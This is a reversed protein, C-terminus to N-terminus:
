EAIIESVMAWNDRIFARFQETIDHRVDARFTARGNGHDNVVTYDTVLYIRGTLDGRYPTIPTTRRCNAENCCGLAM